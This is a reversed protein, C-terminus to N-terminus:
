NEFRINMFLRFNEHDAKLHNSLDFCFYEKISYFFAEIDKFVHTETKMQVTIGKNQNNKAAFTFFIYVYDLGKLYFIFNIIMLLKLILENEVSQNIKIKGIGEILAFQITGYENKKTM